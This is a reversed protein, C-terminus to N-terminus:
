LFTIFNPHIIYRISHVPLPLYWNRKLQDLTPRYLTKIKKKRKQITTALGDKDGFDSDWM